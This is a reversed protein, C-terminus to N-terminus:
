AGRLTKASNQEAWRELEKTAVFTFRGRRVLRLETRVHEDFFEDSVGLAASAESPCRLMVRPIPSVVGSV